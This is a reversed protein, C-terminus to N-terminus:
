SPLRRWELGETAKLFSKLLRPSSAAVSSSELTAPQGFRDTVMGGAEQVLLLGSAVDWPYLHHHFYLDVRGCAAYALGLASSGMMRISQMGPWLHQVMRLAWVGKHDAYGMDFGILCDELRQKGSVAIPQGNLYAGQGRQVRFLERRVPDYTVGLVVEQDSTLAINVCFHPVSSAYNRTGDLPDVVWAYSSGTIRAESEESLVSFDPYEEQLLRLILKEAQIDVDTVVNARGKYSVRKQTGFREVILEGAQQSAEEAVELASRGSRSLPVTM